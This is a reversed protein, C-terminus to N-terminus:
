DVPVIFDQQENTELNYQSRDTFNFHKGYTHLSLSVIDSDNRVSHIGGDKMCIVDGPGADLEHKVELRAYGSQSRDDVRNYRINREIGDIGAVVAWTGHDHPPASGGPEWAVAMIALSHDAEEHLLHVGYGMDPNIDYYKQSVWSGDLALRRSLPTLLRFIEDQDNTKSSIDRLDEIYRDLGYAESM